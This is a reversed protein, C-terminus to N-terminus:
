GFLKKKLIEERESDSRKKRSAKIIAKSPDKRPKNEKSLEVQNEVERILGLKYRYRRITHVEVDYERAMQKDTKFRWYLNIHAVLPGYKKIYYVEKPKEEM